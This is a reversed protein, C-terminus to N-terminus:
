ESECQQPDPNSAPVSSQEVFVEVRNRGREKAKYLATDAQKLLTTLEPSSQGTVTIGISVTLNLSPGGNAIPNGALNERLREAVRVAQELGTEPLAIIFEEGGIRAFIDVKRLAASVVEAVKKLARDGVEHGYFRIM